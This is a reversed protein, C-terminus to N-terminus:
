FPISKIEIEDNPDQYTEKTEVGGVSQKIQELSMKSPSYYYFKNAWEEWENINIQGTAGLESVMKLAVNARIDDTKKDQIDNVIGKTAVQSSLSAPASLMAKFNLYQGNEKIAVEVKMGKDWNKSIEDEFGNIWKDPYELTQIGISVANADYQTPKPNRSIKSITVQM